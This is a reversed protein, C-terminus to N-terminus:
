LLENLNQQESNMYYEYTDLYYRDTYARYVYRSAYLYVLEKYRYTLLYKGESSHHCLQKKLGINCAEERYFFSFSETLCASTASHCVIYRNM